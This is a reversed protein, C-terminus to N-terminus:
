LKSPEVHKRGLSELASAVPSREWGWEKEILPVGRMVVKAPQPLRLATMENYIVTVIEV